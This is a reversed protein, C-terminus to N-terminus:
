KAVPKLIRLVPKGNINELPLYVSHTEQNVAVTHAHPAIFGEYIKKVNGKQVNFITMIGSEGAIYLHHLGEDYALVDPAARVTDSSLIKKSDLDFVLMVNNVDCTIFTYSTVPDIYFGHPHQCGPLAYKNVVKNKAPDIEVLKNDAGAVTYIRNQRDFNHTNGVAAGIPIDTVQENTQTDIVSVTGGNENSVYIERNQPYYAIGDPIKGTPIYKTVQLTNEDIVAVQKNGGVSVFVEKLSLVALIGYPSSTLPIDKIIKQKQMDFVHVMNSGLHSIYLRQTNLDISQYDLRNAGGSLPIEKVQQLAVSAAGQQSVISKLSPYFNFQKIVFALIILFLVVILLVKKSMSFANYVPM